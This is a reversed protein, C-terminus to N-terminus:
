EESSNFESYLDNLSIGTANLEAVKANYQNVLDNHQAVLSNARNVAANQPGVLANSEDIRGRARLEDIQNALRDAEDGAANSQGEISILQENLAALEYTLTAFRVELAKFVAEYGEFLTVVVARDDFFRGYYKELGSSLVGVETGILSHGENARDSASYVALETEIAPQPTVALFDEIMTDIKTRARRDLQEYAAHLMEHAATVPMVGSLDPREVRLVAIDQSFSDYCGLVFTDDSEPLPCDEAFHVKDRIQPNNTAFLTRAHRSLSAERALEIVEEREAQELLDRLEEAEDKTFSGLAVSFRSPSASGNEGIPALDVVQGDLTVALDADGVQVAHFAWVTEGHDSLQAVVSQRGKRAGRLAILELESGTLRAPGLLLREAKKDNPTDVVVCAGPDDGDRSTTPVKRGLAAVQTPDCSSIAAEGFARDAGTIKKAEKPVDSLVSRLRVEHERGDIFGDAIEDSTTGASVPAGFAVAMTLALAIGVRRM